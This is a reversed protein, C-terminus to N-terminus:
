PLWCRHDNIPLWESRTIEETSLSSSLSSCSTEMSRYIELPLKSVASAPQQRDIHSHPFLPRLSESTSGADVPAFNIDDARILAMYNGGIDVQLNPLDADCPFTVGGVTENNVAGLVQSYYANVIAANVLMLTTGTDAIAQGGPVTMVAGTGVAFSQSSFQWFGATTNIAAWSLPGNFKTSDIAGFEYAGVADHRLDATFVPEALTDMANAFFTNQQVPKVTNLKPFALGVLGNSNTDDVFSATLATPLEVAQGTVTAGGINVTDTGVKGAAMSGDGYSIAFSAGPMLEFTASTEPNFNTHGMQDAAPLGTNFVWLDSSGTDFDMVITQGGISIPALYELDGDVPTATVMGSGNTAASVAQNM